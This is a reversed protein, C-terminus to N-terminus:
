CTNAQEVRAADPLIEIELVATRVKRSVEAVKQSLFRGVIWPMM